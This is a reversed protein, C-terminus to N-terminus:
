FRRESDEEGWPGMLTILLLKEFEGAFRCVMEEPASVLKRDTVVGFHVRKDYSLISVGMGIQGSQPVWFMM